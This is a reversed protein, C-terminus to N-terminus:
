KLLSTSVIIVIIITAIIGYIITTILMTKEPHAQWSVHKIDVVTLCNETVKGLHIRIEIYILADFM